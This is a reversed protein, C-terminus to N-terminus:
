LPNQGKAAIGGTHPLWTIQPQAIHKAQMTTPDSDCIWLLTVPPTWDNTIETSLFTKSDHVYVFWEFCMIFYTFFQFLVLSNWRFQSFIMVIGLARSIVLLARQVSRCCVHASTRKFLIHTHTCQATGGVQIAKSERYCHASCHHIYSPSEFDLWTCLAVKSIHKNDIKLNM